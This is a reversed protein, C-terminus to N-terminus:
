AAYKDELQKVVQNVNVDKDNREKENKIKNLYNVTMEFNKKTEGL